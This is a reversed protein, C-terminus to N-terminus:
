QGYGDAVLLRDLLDMHLRPLHYDRVTGNLVGDKIDHLFEMTKERDRPHPLLRPARGEGGELRRRSGYGAGGSNDENYKGSSRARGCDACDTGLVCPVYTQRGCGSYTGSPVTAADNACAGTFLIEYSGSPLGLLSPEGDEGALTDHQPLSTHMDHELNFPKCFGNAHFFDGTPDVRPWQWFKLDHGDDTEDYFYFYSRLSCARTHAHLCPVPELSPRM